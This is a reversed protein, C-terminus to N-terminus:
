QFPCYQLHFTCVIQSAVGRIGDCWPLYDKANRGGQKSGGGDIGCSIMPNVPEDAGQLHPILAHDDKEDALRYFLAEDAYSVAM